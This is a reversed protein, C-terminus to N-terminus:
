NNRSRLVQKQMCEKNFASLRVWCEKLSLWHMILIKLYIYKFTSMKIKKSAQLMFWTYSFIVHNTWKRACSERLLSWKTVFQTFNLSISTAAGRRRGTPPSLSLSRMLDWLLLKKKPTLKQLKKNNKGIKWFVAKQRGRANRLIM